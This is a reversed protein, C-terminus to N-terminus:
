HLLASGAAPAMGVPPVARRPGKRPGLRCVARVHALTDDDAIRRVVVTHEGFGHEEERQLVGAACLSVLATLAAEGDHLHAEALLASATARQGVGLLNAVAEILREFDHAIPQALADLLRHLRADPARVAPEVASLAAFTARLAFAGDFHALLEPAFLTQWRMRARRESGLDVLESSHGRPSRVVVGGRQEIAQTLQSLDMGVEPHLQLFAHLERHDVLCCAAVQALLHDRLAIAVKELPENKACAFPEGAVAHVHPRARAARPASVGFRRAYSSSIGLASNGTTTVAIPLVWDPAKAELLASLAAVSPVGRDTPGDADSATPLAVVDAPDIHFDARSSAVLESITRAHVSGIPVVLVNGGRELQRKAQLFSPEDLTGACFTRECWVRQALAAARRAWPARSRWLSWQLVGPPTRLAPGSFPVARGNRHMLHAFVGCCVREIYADIFFDEPLAASRVFDFTHHTFYPFVRNITALTAAVRRTHRLRKSDKRLSFFAQALKAPGRQLVADHLLFRWTRPGLYTVRARRVFPRRAFYRVIAACTRGVQAGHARGAVAHVIPVEGQLSAPLDFAARLLGDAVVDVPVIDLAVNRNADIARLLGAGITLVFGAFAARSDIWGPFPHQWSASIISPRVIRLPVEGCRENLLHEALSKTYTYTNAHGSEALLHAEDVGAQVDALLEEAPRPLPALAEPLTGPRWPVVYATSTVVMAGLRPMLRALELLHLSCVVNSRAAEAIPRDFDVAAACHVIHTTHECVTQKSAPSLHLDPEALDGSVVQVKGFLSRPLGCFCASTLMQEYARARASHTKSPRVLVSVAAIGLEDSRRLLEYLVVKGVFGTAGTLLVHRGDNHRAAGPGALASVARKAAQAPDVARYKSAKRGSAM